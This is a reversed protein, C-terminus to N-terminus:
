PQPSHDTVAQGIAARQQGGLVDIHEDHKIGLGDLIEDAKVEGIHPLALLLARAHIHGLQHHPDEADVQAFLEDLTLSGATVADLATRRAEAAQAEAAAGQAPDPTPLTM